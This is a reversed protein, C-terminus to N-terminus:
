RVTVPFSMESRVGISNDATLHVDYRQPLYRLFSPIRFSGAFRGTGHKHLPLAYGLVSIEVATANSTTTVRIAERTGAVLTRAPLWIAVVRPPDDNYLWPSEAYPAEAGFRFDPAQTPTQGRTCGVLFLYALVTARSIM